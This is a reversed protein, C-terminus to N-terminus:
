QKELRFWIAELAGGSAQMFGRTFDAENVKVISMSTITEVPPRGDDDFVAVAFGQTMLTRANLVCDGSTPGNWRPELTDHATVTSATVFLSDNPCYLDVFADPLGGDPDWSTAATLTAAFPTVKWLSAVDVSCGTSWCISESPCAMCAAGRTGCEVALRGEKCTSGLCCGECAAGGPACSAAGSGGGTGGGDPVTGSIMCGLTALAVLLGVTILTARM